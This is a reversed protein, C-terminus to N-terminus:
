QLKSTHQILFTGLSIAFAGVGGAIVVEAVTDDVLKELDGLFALDGVNMQQAIEKYSLLTSPTFAAVVGSALGIASPGLPCVLSPLDQNHLETTALYAGAYLAGYKGLKLLYDISHGKGM